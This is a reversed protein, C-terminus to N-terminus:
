AGLITWSGDVYRVVFVGKREERITGVLNGRVRLYAVAECDEGSVLKDRDDLGCGFNQTGEPYEVRSSLTSGVSEERGSLVVGSRFVIASGIEVEFNLEEDRKVEYELILVQANSGLPVGGVDFEADFKYLLSVSYIDDVSRQLTAGVDLPIVDNGSEMRSQFILQLQDIGLEISQQQDGSFTGDFPGYDVGTQFGAFTRVTNGNSDQSETVLAYQGGNNLDIEYQGNAVITYKELEGSEFNDQLLDDLSIDGVLRTIGSCSDGSDTDLDSGLAGSISCAQISTSNTGSNYPFVRIRSIKEQSVLKEDFIEVAVGDITKTDKRLSVMDTINSAQDNRSNFFNSAQPWKSPPYFSLAFSTRLESQVSNSNILPLNKAEETNESTAYLFSRVWFVVTLPNYRRESNVVLPDTVGVLNTEFLIDVEHTGNDEENANTIEAEFSVSPWVVTIQSPETVEFSPATDYKDDYVLRIYPKEEISGDSITDKKWFVQTGNTTLSGETLEIDFTSYPGTDEASTKVPLYTLVLDGSSLSVSKTTTDSTTTVEYAFMVGTGSESVNSAPCVNNNNVCGVLYETAYMIDQLSNFLVPSLEKYLTEHSQYYQNLREAHGPDIFSAKNPDSAWFNEIAENLDAVFQKAKGINTVWDALAAPVDIQVNTEVGDQFSDLKNNLSILAANAEGPVLAGRGNAFDINASLIEAAISFIDAMAVSNGSNDKQLLQGQRTRIDDTINAVLETYPLSKREILVPMAAVLAGYYFSEKLQSSSLNTSQSIRSPGIPSVSIIDSIGFLKSVHLNALEITYENYVGTRPTDVDAGSGIDDRDSVNQANQVQDTYVTTALSSALDSIWTVNISMDVNIEGVGARLDLPFSSPANFAKRDKYATSGCGAPLECYYTAAGNPDTAIALMSTGVSDELLPLSFRGSDNTTTIFGDFVNNGNSDVIRNPQGEFSLAVMTVRANETATDVQGVVTGDQSKRTSKSSSNNGSCATLLICLSLALLQNTKNKIKM